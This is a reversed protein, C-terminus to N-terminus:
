QEEGQTPTSAETTEPSQTTGQKLHYRLEVVRAAEALTQPKAKRMVQHAIACYTELEVLETEQIMGSRVHRFIEELRRKYAALMPQQDM